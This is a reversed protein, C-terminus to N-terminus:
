RAHDGGGESLATSRVYAAIEQPTYVWCRYRRWLTERAETDGAKARRELARRAARVAPPPIDIGLRDEAWPTARETLVPRARRQSALLRRARYVEAMVRNAVTGGPEADGTDYDKSHIRM